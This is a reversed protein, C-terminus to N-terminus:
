LQGCPVKLRWGSAPWGKRVRSYKGQRPQSVDTSCDAERVWLGAATDRAQKGIGTSFCRSELVPEFSDESSDGSDCVTTAPVDMEQLGVEQWEVGRARKPLPKTNSSHLERGNKRWAIQEGERWQQLGM